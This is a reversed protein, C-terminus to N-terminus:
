KPKAVVSFLATEPLGSKANTYTFAFTGKVVNMNAFGCTGGTGAYVTASGGDVLTYGANTCTGGSTVGKPCVLVSTNTCNVNTLTLATSSNLIIDYGLGNSISFTISNPTALPKGDCSIGSSGMCTNPTFRSPDLVGFYSLAGIAALVVLIAWGYTMMFELAAQGRFSKM